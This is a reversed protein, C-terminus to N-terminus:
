RADLPQSTYVIDNCHLKVTSVSELSDNDNTDLPLQTQVLKRVSLIAHPTASTPDRNLFDQADFQQIDPKAFHSNRLELPHSLRASM